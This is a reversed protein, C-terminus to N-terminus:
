GRLTNACMENTAKIRCNYGGTTDSTKGRLHRKYLRWKIWGDKRNSNGSCTQGLENEGATCVAAIQRCLGVPSLSGDVHSYKVFLCIAHQCPSICFFFLFCVVCCFVLKAHTKEGGWDGMECDDKPTEPLKKSQWSKVLNEIIWRTYLHLIFLNTYQCSHCIRRWQRKLWLSM